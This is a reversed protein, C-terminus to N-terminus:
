FGGQLNTTFPIQGKIKAYKQHALRKTQESMRKLIEALYMRHALLKIAARHTQGLFNNDIEKDLFEIHEQILFCTLPDEIIYSEGDRNFTGVEDVLYGMADAEKQINELSTENAATLNGELGIVERLEQVTLLKASKTKAESVELASKVLEEGVSEAFRQLQDANIKDSSRNVYVEQRTQESHFHNAALRRKEDDNDGVDGIGVLSESKTFEINQESVYLASQAVCKRPIGKWNKSYRVELLNRFASSSQLNLTTNTQEDFLGILRNLYGNGMNTKPIVPLIDAFQDNAGFFALYNSVDISYDKLATYLPGRGKHFVRTKNKPKQKTLNQRPKYLDVLVKKTDVEMKSFDTGIITGEQIRESAFLWYLLVFDYTTPKYLFDISPLPMRTAITKTSGDCFEHKYYDKIGRDPRTENGLFLNLYEYNPFEAKLTPYLASQGYHAVHIASLFEENMEQLLKIQLKYILVWLNENSANKVQTIESQAKVSDEGFEEIITKLDEWSSSAMFTCRLNHLLKLVQSCYERCSFLLERNTYGLEPCLDELAPTKGKNIYRIVEWSGRFTRVNPSGFVKRMELFLELNESKVNVAAESFLKRLLNVRDAMTSEPTGKAKLENRYLDRDTSTIRNNSNQSLVKFFESLANLLTYSQKDSYTLYNESFYKWLAKIEPIDQIDSPIVVTREIGKDEDYFTISATNSQRLRLVEAKSGKNFDLKM